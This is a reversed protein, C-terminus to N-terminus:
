PVFVSADEWLLSAKSKERFISSGITDLSEATSLTM